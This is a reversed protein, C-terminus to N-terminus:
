QSEDGRRTQVIRLIRPRTGDDPVGGGRGHRRRHLAPWGKGSVKCSRLCRQSGGNKHEAYAHLLQGLHTAPANEYGANWRDLAEAVRGHGGGPERLQLRVRAKASLGDVSLGQALLHVRGGEEEEESTRSGCVDGKATGNTVNVFQRFSSAGSQPARDPIIDALENGAAVVAFVENGRLLQRLEVPMVQDPSGGRWSLNLWAGAELNVAVAAQLAFPAIPVVTSGFPLGDHFLVVWDMANARQDGFGKNLNLRNLYSNYDKIANLLPHWDGVAKPAWNSPKLDFNIVHARLSPVDLGVLLDDVVKRVQAGHGREFDYDVLVLPTRAAAETMGALNKELRLRAQEEYPSPPFAETCEPSQLLEVNVREMWVIDGIGSEALFQAQSPPLSLSVERAERIGLQNFDAVQWRIPTVGHELSPPRNTGISDAVYSGHDSYVMAETDASQTVHVTKTPDSRSIEYQPRALMPPIRLVQGVTLTDSGLENANKIIESLGLATQPAASESYKSPSSLFFDYARDVIGLLGENPKVKITPWLEVPTTEALAKALNAFDQDSLDYPNYRLVSRDAPQIQAASRLAQGTAPPFTVVSGLLALLSLIGIRAATWRRSLNSSFRM